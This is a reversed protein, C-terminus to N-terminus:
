YRAEETGRESGSAEDGDILLRDRAFAVHSRLLDGLVSRALPYLYFSDDSSIRIESVAGGGECEIVAADGRVHIRSRLVRDDGATVEVVELDDLDL